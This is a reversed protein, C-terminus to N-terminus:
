RGIPISKVNQLLERIIYKEPLVRCYTPVNATSYTQPEANEKQRDVRILSYGFITTM